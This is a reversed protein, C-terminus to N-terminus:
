RSNSELKDDARNAGQEKEEFGFALSTLNLASIFPSSGSILVRKLRLRLFPSRLTALYFM